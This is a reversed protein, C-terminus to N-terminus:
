LLSIIKLIMDELEERNMYGEKELCSNLPVILHNIFTIGEDHFTETITEFETLSQCFLKGSPSCHLFTLLGGSIIFNKVQITQLMKGGIPYDEKKFADPPFKVRDDVGGSPRIKTITGDPNKIEIIGDKKKERKTVKPKVPLIFYVAPYQHFKGIEYKAGSEQTRQPIQAGAREIEKLMKDIEGQSHGQKKIEAVMLPNKFLEGITMDNPTGPIVTDILSKTFQTAVNQLAQSAMKENKYKLISIDANYDYEEPYFQSLKDRLDQIDALTMATVLGSQIAFNMADFFDSRKGKKTIVGLTSTTEIVNGRRETKIIKNIEGKEQDMFVEPNFHGLKFISQQNSTIEEFLKWRKPNICKEIQSKNVM